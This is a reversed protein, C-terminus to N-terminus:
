ISSRSDAIQEGQIERYASDDRTQAGFATDVRGPNQLGYEDSDKAPSDIIEKAKLNTISRLDSSVVSNKARFREPSTLLWKEPGERQLEVQKGNRSIVVKELDEPAVGVVSKDRVDFLTKNLSIKLTDAVLLLRQDDDVRAYFSTKSPNSAGFLLETKKDPTSFQFVFEPKDLGYDEWKVDKELIVKEPTAEAITALLNDVALKDAKTKVPETVVWTDGPKQVEVNGKDHTEIRIQVVKDKDLQVIKKGTEEQRKQDPRYRIEVIYLWGVVAVLIALYMILKSLKM